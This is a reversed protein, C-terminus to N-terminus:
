CGGIRQGVTRTKMTMRIAGATTATGSIDFGTPSFSGTNQTTTAGSRGSCVMTSSFHNANLTFSTFRCQANGGSLLLHLGHPAQAASLCSALVNKKGKMSAAIAPAAPASADVITVVSRWQGPQLSLDGATAAPLALLALALFARKM